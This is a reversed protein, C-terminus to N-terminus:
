LLFPLSVNGTLGDGQQSRSRSSTAEPTFALFSIVLAAHGPWPLIGATGWGCTRRGTGTRLSLEGRWSGM